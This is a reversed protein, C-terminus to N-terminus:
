DSTTNTIISNSLHTAPHPDTPLSKPNELSAFSTQQEASPQVPPNWGHKRRSVHSASSPNKRKRTPRLKSFSNCIAETIAQPLPPKEDQNRIWLLDQYSSWVGQNCSLIFRRRIDQDHAPDGATLMAHDLPLLPLSWSTGLAAASSKKAQLVFPCDNFLHSRLRDNSHGCFACATSTARGLHTARSRTMLGNCFFQLQFQANSDPRPLQTLNKSLTKLLLSSTPRPSSPHLLELWKHLPKSLPTVFSTLFSDECALLERYTSSCPTNGSWLPLRQHVFLAAQYRNYDIFRRAPDRLVAGRNWSPILSAHDPSANTIPTPPMLTPVLPMPFSPDPLKAVLMAAAKLSIDTRPHYVGTFSPHSMQVSRPISKLPFVFNDIAGNIKTLTEHPPLFFNWLYSIVPIIFVNVLIMRQSKSFAHRLPLYSTLRSLLKKTAEEYVELPTIEPGFLVGLYKGATKCELNSWVPCVHAVARSLPLLRPDDPTPVPGVPNPSSPANTNSSHSSLSESVAPTPPQASSPSLAVPGFCVLCPSSPVNTNSSHSSLFESVAPTPPQAPSPLRAM